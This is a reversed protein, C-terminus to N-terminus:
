KKQRVNKPIMKLFDKTLEEGGPLEKKYLFNMLHRVLRFYIISGIIYTIVGLPDSSGCRMIGTEKCDVYILYFIHGFGWWCFTWVSHTVIVAMEPLYQGFIM